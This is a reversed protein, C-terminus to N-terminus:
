FDDDWDVLAKSETTTGTSQSRRGSGSGTGGFLGFQRCIGHLGVALLITALLIVLLLLAQQLSGELNVWAAAQQLEPIGAFHGVLEAAAAIGALIVPLLLLFLGAGILTWNRNGGGFAMRLYTLPLITLLAMVILLVLRPWGTSWSATTAQLAPASMNTGAGAGVGIGALLNTLAQIDATRLSDSDQLSGLLNLVSSNLSQDTRTVLPELSNRYQNELQSLHQRAAAQRGDFAASAARGSLELSDGIAQAVNGYGQSQLTAALNEGAQGRVGRRGLDNILAGLALEQQEAELQDRLAALDQEPAADEGEAAETEAGEAPAAPEPAPAVTEEEAPAQALVPEASEDAAPQTEPAAPPAEAEATPEAAPDAPAPQVTAADAPETVPESETAADAPTQDLSGLAALEASLATSRETVLEADSDVVAQILGAFDSNLTDPTQPADQLSLSMGYTGALTIYASEQSEPFQAQVTELRAAMSRALGAQYASLLGAPADAQSLADLTDLDLGLESALQNFGPRAAEASGTAIASELLARQFGGRLMATQVALDTRSQNAIATRANDFATEMAQVLSSSSTDQAVLRMTSAASELADLSATSDSGIQQVSVQLNDLAMIHRQLTGESQAEAVPMSASLLLFATLLHLFRSM